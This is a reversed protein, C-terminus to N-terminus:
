RRGLTLALGGGILLAGAGIGVPLLWGPLAARPAPPRGPREAPPTVAPKPAPAPRHIAAYASPSLAQLALDAISLASRAEAEPYGLTAMAAIWNQMNVRRLDGGGARQAALVADAIFATAKGAESAAQYAAYDGLGAYYSEPVGRATEVGPPWQAGLDQLVSFM